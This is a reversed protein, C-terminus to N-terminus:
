NLPKKVREPTLNYQRLETRAEVISYKTKIDRLVKALTADISSTSPDEYEDLTLWKEDLLRIMMQKEFDSSIVKIKNEITIDDDTFNICNGEKHVDLRTGEENNLDAVEIFYIDHTQRHSKLPEIDWIQQSLRNDLVYIRDHKSHKGMMWTPFASEIHSLKRKYDKYTFPKGGFDTGIKNAYYLSYAVYVNHFEEVYLRVDEKYFQDETKIIVDEGVIKRVLNSFYRVVNAYEGRKVNPNVNENSKGNEDEGIKCEKIYDPYHLAVIVKCKTQEKIKRLFNLYVYDIWNLYKKASFGYYVINHKKQGEKQGKNIKNEENSEPLSYMNIINTQLVGNKDISNNKFKYLECVSELLVNTADFECRKVLLFKCLKIIGIILIAAVIVFGFYVLLALLPQGELFTFNLVNESIYQLAYPVLIGTLVFAAIKATSNDWLKKFFEKM